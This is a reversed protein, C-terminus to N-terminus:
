SLYRIFTNSSCVLCDVNSVGDTIRNKRNATAHLVPAGWLNVAFEWCTVDCEDM